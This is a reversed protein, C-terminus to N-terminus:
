QKGEDDVGDMEEGRARTENHEGRPTDLCYPLSIIFVCLCLSDITELQNRNNIIRENIKIKDWESTAGEGM